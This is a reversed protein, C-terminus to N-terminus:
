VSVTLGDCPKYVSVKLSYSDCMCQKSVREEGDKCSNVLYILSQWNQRPKRLRNELFGHWTEVPWACAFLAYSGMHQSDLIMLSCNLINCM